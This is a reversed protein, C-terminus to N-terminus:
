PRPDAFLVRPTAPELGRATAKRSQALCPRFLFTGLASMAEWGGTRLCPDPKGHPGSAFSACPKLAAEPRRKWHSLEWVRTSRIGALLKVWSYVRCIESRRGQGCSPSLPAGVSGLM